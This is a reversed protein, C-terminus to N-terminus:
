ILHCAFVITAKMKDDRKKGKKTLVSAHYISFTLIIHIAALNKLM